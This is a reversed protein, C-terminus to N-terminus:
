MGVSSKCFGTISICYCVESCPVSKPALLKTGQLSTTEIESPGEDSTGSYEGEHGWAGMGGHGWAEHVKMKEIFKDEKGQPKAHHKVEGKVKKIGEEMTKMGNKITDESATVTM